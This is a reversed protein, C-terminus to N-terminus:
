HLLLMESNSFVILLFIKPLSKNHFYKSSFKLLEIFNNLFVKFGMINEFTEIHLSPNKSFLFYELILLLGLIIGFKIETLIKSLLFMTLIKTANTIAKSCTKSCTM